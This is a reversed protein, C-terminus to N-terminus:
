TVRWARSVTAAKPTAAAHIPIEAERWLWAFLWHRSSKKLLVSVESPLVRQLMQGQASTPTM